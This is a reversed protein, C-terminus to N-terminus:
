TGQALPRNSRIRSPHTWKVQRDRSGPTPGKRAGIVLHRAKYKSASPHGRLAWSRHLLPAMRLRSEDLLLLCAGRCRAKQKIRPWDEALWQAIAEDDQERPVRRPKQSTYGRQRLWTSLYNPHFHTDFEQEILQARRTL